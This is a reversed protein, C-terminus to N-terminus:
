QTRFSFYGRVLLFNPLLVPLFSRVPIGECKSKFNLPDVFRFPKEQVKHNKACPSCLSVADAIASSRAAEKM